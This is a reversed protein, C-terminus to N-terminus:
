VSNSEKEHFKGIFKECKGNRMVMAGCNERLIDKGIPEPYYIELALTHSVSEFQHYELPTVNTKEKRTLITEDILDYDKKWIKIKLKGFIVFFLNNKFQHLHKSCRYGKKIWILHVEFNDNKFIELTWGWIKGQIM